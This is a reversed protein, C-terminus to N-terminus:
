PVFIGQKMFLADNADYVEVAGLGWIARRGEKVAGPALADASSSLLCSGGITTDATEACPITFGYPIDSVTGAGPGGPHPTNLKDTIRLPTTARLEGAYDALGAQTYVDTVVATIAVDAQDGPTLPNGVVADFRVSSISKTPKGNSDASGVTLQDSTQTPPNCSGFALAPGHQRNPSTCANYAPVLYTMFPTAGKPRPYANIPISQWDLGPLWTAYQPTLQTVTHEGTLDSSAMHLEYRSSATIYRVFAITTGDPSWVPSQGVPTSGTGCPPSRNTGDANITTLRDSVFVLRAADPSWDPTSTYCYEGFLYTLNSGDPKVTVLSGPGYHSGDYALAIRNGDPAWSLDYIEASQLIETENSGDANVTRLEDYESSGSGGGCYAPPPPCQTRTFAIKTGDPSWAPNLVEGTGDTIGVPNSGDANMVWIEGGPSAGSVFAIKSGDPSWAPQKDMVSNTTLQVKGSGDPNIVFIERCSEPGNCGADYALKGNVGPFAAQAPSAVVCCLASLVAVLSFRAAVMGGM